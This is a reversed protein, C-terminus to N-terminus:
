NNNVSQKIERILKENESDVFGAAVSKAYIDAIEPTLIEDLREDIREILSLKEDIQMLIKHKETILNYIEELAVEIQKSNTNEM